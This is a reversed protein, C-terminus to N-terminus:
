GKTEYYHQLAKFLKETNCEYLGSSTLCNYEIVKFENTGVRAIDITFNPCPAYIQIASEAYEKIENYESETLTSLSNKGDLAYRSMTIIKYDVVYCRVEELLNMLNTSIIVPSMIQDLVPRLENKEELVSRLTKGSPVVTGSFLKLDDHPKIFLDYDPKIDLADLASTNFFKGATKNLFYDSVPLSQTQFRSPTYQISNFFQSHTCLYDELYMKRLITLSCRMLTTQNLDVEELGTLELIKTPYRLDKVNTKEVYGFPVIEFGSEELKKFEHRLLLEKRNNTQVLIKM